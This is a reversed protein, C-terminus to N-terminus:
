RRVTSKQTLRDDISRSENEWASRIGAGSNQVESANEEEDDDEDDRM